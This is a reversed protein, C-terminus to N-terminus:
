EEDKKYKAAAGCVACAWGNDKDPGHTVQLCDDITSIWNGKRDVAWDQMVHATTHFENHEPDEPCYFCGENM